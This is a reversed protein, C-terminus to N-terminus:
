GRRPQEQKNLPPGLSLKVKSTKDAGRRKDRVQGERREKMKRAKHHNNRNTNSNKVSRAKLYVEEGRRGMVTEGRVQWRKEDNEQEGVATGEDDTRRRRRGNSGRGEVARRAGGDVQRRWNPRRGSRRKRWVVRALLLISKGRGLAPIVFARTQRMSVFRFSAVWYTAIM